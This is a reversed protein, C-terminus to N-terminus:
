RLTVKPFIQSGTQDSDPIALARWNSHRFDGVGVRSDSVQSEGERWKVREWWPLGYIAGSMCLISATSIDSKRHRSRRTNGDHANSGRSLVDSLDKRCGCFELRFNRIGGRNVHKECGSFTFGQDESVGFQFDSSDPVRLISATRTDRSEHAHQALTGVKTPMPSKRHGSWLLDPHVRRHVEFLLDSREPVQLFSFRAIGALYFVM